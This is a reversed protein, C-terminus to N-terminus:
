SPKKTKRRRCSINASFVGPIGHRPHRSSQRKGGSRCELDISFRRRSAEGAPPVGYGLGLNLYLSARGYMSAPGKTPRRAPERRATGEVDVEAQGPRRGIVAEAGGSNGAGPIRDGAHVAHQIRQDVEVAMGAGYEDAVEASGRQLGRIIRSRRAVFFRQHVAVERGEVEDLGAQTKGVQLVAGVLDRGVGPDRVLGSRDRPDGAVLGLVRRLEDAPGPRASELEADRVGYVLGHHGVTLEVGVRPQDHSARDGRDVANLDPEDIRTSSIQAFAGAARERDQLDVTGVAAVVMRHVDGDVLVMKM